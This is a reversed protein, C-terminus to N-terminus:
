FHLEASGLAHLPDRAIRRRADPNVVLIVIGTAAFVAGGVILADSANALGYAGAFRGEVTKEHYAPCPSGNACSAPVGDRASGARGIAVIGTVAGAGLSAGGIATLVAGAVRWPHGGDQRTARSHDPGSRKAAAAMDFDLAHVGEGAILNFRSKMAKEGDTVTVEHEGPDKPWATGIDVAMGDIFVRTASTSHRVAVLVRPLQSDLSELEAAGEKVAQRWSSPADSAITEAALEAYTARAEVLRGQKRQSRGIYLVLVPSHYLREAKQFLDLAAAWEGREYLDVGRQGKEIAEDSTSPPEDAISQSWAASMPLHIITLLAVGFVSLPRM